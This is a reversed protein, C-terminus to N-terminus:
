HVLPAIAAEMDRAVKDWSMHEQIFRRGGEGVRRRLAEDTLISRLQAALARPDPDDAIILHTGDELRANGLLDPPVNALAPVGMLMAEMTATGLGLYQGTLSVYYVDSNAFEELVGSHPVEGAFVVREALGLRRAEHVADDLYVHGAIKLRIGPFEGAIEGFARVVPVYSRQKIVSGVCIIQNHLAYDHRHELFQAPDGNVGFNVIISKGAIQPGHVDVLYRLIERDWAIIRACSPFLLRGCILRDFVNLLRHRWAESSQLQTGVSCVLPIGCSKAAHAAPFAIDLYHNVLLIAQAGTDACLKRMRRFNGPYATSVRFHKFFPIGPIHIAPLRHVPFPHREPDPRDNEVTVVTVEHGRAQLALALNRAYFSTGTRIPPFMASVLLLKM